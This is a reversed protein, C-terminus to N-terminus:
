RWGIIKVLLRRALLSFWIVATTISLMTKAAKTTTPISESRTPAM